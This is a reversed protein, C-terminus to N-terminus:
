PRAPARASVPRWTSVLALALLLEAIDGGYYMLDAAGRLAAPSAPIQVLVGAYILQALIAHAAIAVGLVVLRLPVSPRHPAPDPGAISFAFLYGALLFHLHVAGHLLPASATLAYLPTFYLAAMGGITLALGAVPHSVVGMPRSGLM